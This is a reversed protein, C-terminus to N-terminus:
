SVSALANGTADFDVSGDAKFIQCHGHDTYPCLCVDAMVNLAPFATKIAQIGLVSPCDNAAAFSGCENKRSMDNGTVVGFVLVSKLGRLVLAELYRVIHTYPIRSLGPLSPIEVIADDKTVFVPFVLADPEIRTASPAQWARLVPTRYGPHLRHTHPVITTTIRMSSM